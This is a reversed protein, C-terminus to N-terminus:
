WQASYEQGVRREESRTVRSELTIASSTKAAFAPHESVFFEALGVPSPAAPSSFATLEHSPLAAGDGTPNASNKTDLCGANAAFFIPLACTQVGTVILD